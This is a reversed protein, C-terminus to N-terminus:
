RLKKVAIRITMDSTRMVGSKTSLTIIQLIEALGLDELSGVLSM